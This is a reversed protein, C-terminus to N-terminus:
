FFCKNPQLLNYSENTKPREAKAVKANRRAVSYSTGCIDSGGSILNVIKADLPPSEAWKPVKKPDECKNNKRGLLEKLHGQRLLYSIEKRLEMCDKTMHGFDEHFACWKSKDM